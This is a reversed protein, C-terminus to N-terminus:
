FNIYLITTEFKKYITNNEINQLDDDDFSKLDHEVWECCIAIVDLEFDISDDYYNYLYALAKDTFNNPRAQNFAEKFQYKNIEKYIM